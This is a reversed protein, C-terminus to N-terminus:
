KQDEENIKNLRNNCEKFLIKSNARTAELKQRKEMRQKRKLQQDISLNSSKPDKVFASQPRERPIPEMLVDLPPRILHDPLLKQVIEKKGLKVPSGVVKIKPTKTPSQSARKKHIPNIVAMNAHSYKPLKEGVRYKM